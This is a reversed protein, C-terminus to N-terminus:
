GGDQVPFRRAAEKQIYHFAGGIMLIKGSFWFIWWTMMEMEREGQTVTYIGM